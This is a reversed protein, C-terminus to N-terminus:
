LTVLRICLRRGFYRFWCNFDDQAPYFNVLILSRKDFWCLGLWSLWACSLASFVFLRCGAFKLPIELLWVFEAWGVLVSVHAPASSPM